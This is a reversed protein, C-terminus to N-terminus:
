DTQILYGFIRICGGIGSTRGDIVPESLLLKAVPGTQPLDSHDLADQLAVIIATAALQHVRNKSGCRSSIHGAEASSPPRFFVDKEVTWVVTM